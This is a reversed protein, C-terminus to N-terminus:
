LRKLERITLDKESKIPIEKYEAMKVIYWANEMDTNFDMACKGSKDYLAIIVSNEDTKEIVKICIVDQWAVTKQFMWFISRVLKEENVRCIFSWGLISLFFLMIGLIIFILFLIRTEHKIFIWLLSFTIIVILTACIQVLTKKRPHKICFSDKYEINPMKDPSAKAMGFLLELFLEILNSM